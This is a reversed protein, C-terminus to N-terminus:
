WDAKWVPEGARRLPAGIRIGVERIGKLAPQDLCQTLTVTTHLTDNATINAVPLTYDCRHGLGSKPINHDLLYSRQENYLMASDQKVTIALSINKYGYGETHLLVQLGWEGIGEMPPITYVLTDDHTWGHHGIAIFDLHRTDAMCSCLAAIIATLCLKRLTTKVRNKM